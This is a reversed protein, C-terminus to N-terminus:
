THSAASMFKSKERIKEGKLLLCIPFVSLALAVFGLLSSAWQFGLVTYMSTTALPLWAAFMNEGFAVAAIASGAYKAYADTIYRDVATVIVMIGAGVLALGISPIMWHVHPFASWGYCFLGGALGLLSAPISLPLRAEPVAVGPGVSNRPAFRRYYRNQPLCAFFGVVEGAFLAIQILGSASDSFGYNAAYVQAVSQTSIFVVGFSFASWLALFFVVPETCFLLAPRTTAEYLLTSISPWGDEAAAPTLHAYAKARRYLVISGRTEDITVLLLPFITCYIITQIYFVRFM